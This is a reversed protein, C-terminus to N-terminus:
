EPVYFEDFSIEPTGCTDGFSQTALVAGANDMLFLTAKSLRCFCGNPDNSGGCSRNLVRVTDIPFDGGLDVEWTVPIGSSAVNTHSFTDVRGDLALSAEFDKFTSSQRSSKGSAVNKGSSFVQFEFM